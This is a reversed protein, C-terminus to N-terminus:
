QRRPQKSKEATLYLCVGLPDAELKLASEPIAAKRIIRQFDRPGRHKLFWDGCWEIYNRGPQGVQFNGVALVGDRRTWRWMKKLLLAAIRDNLYDFLGASWVLDYSRNPNVKLVNKQEFEIMLTPPRNALLTQAYDIAHQDVDVCHILSEHADSGATCIAEAVDRCPGSALNLVSIGRRTSACKSAFLSVFHNKRHRVAQPAPQRHFFEDWLKGLGKSNARRTYIWDIIQFDGAYGFPKHRGHYHVKSQDLQRSCADFCYKMLAPRCDAVCRSLEDIRDLKEHFNRSFEDAPLTQINPLFEAFDDILRKLTYENM